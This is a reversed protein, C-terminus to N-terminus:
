QLALDIVNRSETSELHPEPLAERKQAPDEPDKMTIPADKPTRMAELRDFMVQHEPSQDYMKIYMQVGERGEAVASSFLYAAIEAEPRGPVVGVIMQVLTRHDTGALTAAMNEMDGKSPL